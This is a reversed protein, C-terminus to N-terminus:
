SLSTLRVIFNSKSCRMKVIGVRPFDVNNSGAISSKERILVPKDKYHM